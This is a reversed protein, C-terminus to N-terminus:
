AGRTLKTKWGQRRSEDMYYTVSDVQSGTIFPLASAYTRSMSGLTQHYIKAFYQRVREAAIFTATVVDEALPDSNQDYRITFDSWIYHNGAAAAFTTPAAVTIPYIDKILWQQALDDNELYVTEETGYVRNRRRFLVTVEKPVRGSGTDIYTLDDELLPSYRATLASFSTDAAGQEVITFPSASMLNCAVALGLYELIDCLTDWSSVGEFSLGEPTGLPQLPLGPWTGLLGPWINQLMTSWTWTTGANLTNYYFAEPYALARINYKALLPTQFWKNLLIGRADTLEILYLPDGLGQTVCQAQVIALHKLVVEPTIRLELSTSYKDLRDYDTKKLLIYGTSPQRGAPCCISNVKELNPMAERGFRQRDAIVSKPSFLPVQTAGSGFTNM